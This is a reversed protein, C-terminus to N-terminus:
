KQWPCPSFQDEDEGVIQLVDFTTPQSADRLTRVEDGDETCM